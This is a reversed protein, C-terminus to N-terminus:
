NSCLLVSLARQFLAKDADYNRQAKHRQRNKFTGKTVIDRGAKNTRTCHVQLDVQGLSNMGKLRADKSLSALFESSEQATVSTEKM